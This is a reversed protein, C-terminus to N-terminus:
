PKFVKTEGVKPLLILKKGVFIDLNLCRSEALNQYGAKLLDFKRAQFLNLTNFIQQLLSLENNQLGKERM